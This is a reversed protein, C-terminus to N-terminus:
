FIRELIETSAEEPGEWEGRDRGGKREGRVAESEICVTDVLNLLDSQQIEPYQVTIAIGRIDKHM